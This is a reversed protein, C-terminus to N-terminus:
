NGTSDRLSISLQTSSKGGDFSMGLSRLVESYDLVRKIGVAGWLEIELGRALRCGRLGFSEEDEAEDRGKIKRYEERGLLREDLM